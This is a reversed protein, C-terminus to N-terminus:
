RLICRRSGWIGDINEHAAWRERWTTLEWRVGGSMELEIRSPGTLYLLKQGDPSWFFALLSRPPPLSAPRNPYAGAVPTRESPWPDEELEFPGQSPRGTGDCVVGASVVNDVDHVAFPWASHAAM